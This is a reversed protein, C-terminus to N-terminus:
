KRVNGKMPANKTHAPKKAHPRDSVAFYIAAGLVMLSTLLAIARRLSRMAEYYETNNTNNDGNM